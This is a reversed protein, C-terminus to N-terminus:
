ELHQQYERVHKDANNKYGRYFYRAIINLFCDSMGNLFAYHQNDNCHHFRHHSMSLLLHYKQLFLILRNHHAGNHCWFHSLEAISSLLGITVLFLNLYFNLHIICQLIFLIILYFFLWFKHGSEYFYIKLPHKNKYIIKAHHLHFAAIYPGVFSTYNTNNDMIMHIFGNIFDTAIYAIVITIIFLFISHISHSYQFLKIISFTQLTVIVVSALLEVRTYWAIDNYKEIAMKYQTSHRYM